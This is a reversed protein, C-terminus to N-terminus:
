FPLNDDHFTEQQPEAANSDKKSGLFRMDSMVVEYKVRKNQDKDIHESTGLRGEVLIEKGKTLHKSCNEANWDWAVINFFDAGADKGQRDVALRFNSVPKGTQTYRMEPPAVVRGVLIVKNYSM